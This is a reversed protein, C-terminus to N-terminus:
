RRGGADLLAHVEAGPGTTAGDTGPRGDRRARARHRRLESRLRGERLWEWILGIVLGLAVSLFIVLFLPMEVGPAVGAMAALAAPLLHLGVVERNALGLVVLGVVVVGWFLWGLARLM